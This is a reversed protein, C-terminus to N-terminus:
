DRLKSIVLQETETLFQNILQQICRPFSILRSANAARSAGILRTVRHAHRKKLFFKRTFFSRREILGRRPHDRKIACVFASSARRRRKRAVDKNAIGDRKKKQKVDKRAAVRFPRIFVLHRHFCHFSASAMRGATSGAPRLPGILAREGPSM